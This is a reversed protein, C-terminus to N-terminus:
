SQLQIAVAGSGGHQLHASAFALVLPAAGGQTLAEVLLDRLVPVGDQSHLGKGTIILLSRAGRRHHIRVFDSVLQSVEAARRGHLDLTAEPSFGKGTIRAISKSSADGRLGEVFEDQKRVSFRVGGAVLAALRARAAQDDRADQAVLKARPTHDMVSGHERSLKNDLRRAGAYADNLARLEAMNRAPAEKGPSIPAAKAPQGYPVQSPKPKKPTELVSRRASPAAGAPRAKVGAKKLLAGLDTGVKPPPKPKDGEEQGHSQKRKKGVAALM